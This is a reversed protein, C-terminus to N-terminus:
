RICYGILKRIIYKEQLDNLKVEYTLSDNFM